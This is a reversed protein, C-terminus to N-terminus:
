LVQIFRDSYWFSFYNCEVTRVSSSAVRTQQILIMLEIRNGDCGCCLMRTGLIGDQVGGGRDYVIEPQVAKQVHLQDQQQSGEKPYSGIPVDYPVDYMM